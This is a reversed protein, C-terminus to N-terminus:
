AWGFYMAIRLVMGALVFLPLLALVIIWIISSLAYPNMSDM